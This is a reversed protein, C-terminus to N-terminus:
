ALATIDTLLNTEDKWEKNYNKYQEIDKLGEDTCSKLKCYEHFGKGGETKDNFVKNGWGLTVDGKPPRTNSHGNETLIFSCYKFQEVDKSPGDNDIGQNNKM